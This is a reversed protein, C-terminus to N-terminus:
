RHHDRAGFCCSLCIRFEVAILKNGSRRRRTRQKSLARVDSIECCVGRVQEADRERGKRETETERERECHTLPPFFLPSNQLPRNMACKIGGNTLENCSRPAKHNARKQCFCMGGGWGFVGLFFFFFFFFVGVDGM